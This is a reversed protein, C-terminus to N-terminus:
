CAICYIKEYWEGDAFFKLEDPPIKEVRDVRITATFVRPAVVPKSFSIQADVNRCERSLHNLMKASNETLVLM